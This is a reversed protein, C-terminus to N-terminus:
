WYKQVVIQVMKENFASLELDESRPRMRLTKEEKGTMLNIGTHEYQEKKVSTGYQVWAPAEAEYAFGELRMMDIKKQTNVGNLERATFHTRAFKDVANRKCDTRARWLVANFLEEQSPVNWVRADFYAIDLHEPAVGHARLHANFRVSAYAASLSLLKDTRGNFGKAGHPFILTIEDSQTYTYSIDPYSRLLDFCTSVM